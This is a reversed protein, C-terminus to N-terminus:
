SLLHGRRIMESPLASWGGLSHPRRSRLPCRRRWGNLARWGRPLKREGDRGFEAAFHMLGALAVEGRSPPHGARYLDHFWRVLSKDIDGDEVLREAHADASGLWEEVEKSYRVATAPVIASSELFTLGGLALMQCMALVRSRRQARGELVRKRKGALREESESSTADSERDEKTATPATRSVLNPAEPPPQLLEQENYERFLAGKDAHPPFLRSCLLPTGVPGPSLVRQRKKAAPISPAQTAPRTPQTAQLTRARKAPMLESEPRLPLGAM